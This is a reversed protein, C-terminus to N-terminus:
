GSTAVARIVKLDFEQHAPKHHVNAAEAPTPGHGARAHIQFYQRGAQLGNDHVPDTHGKIVGGGLGSTAVVGVESSAM